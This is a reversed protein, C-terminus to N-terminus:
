PEDDAPAVHFDAVAGCLFEQLGTEPDVSHYQRHRDENIVLVNTLNNDPVWHRFERGECTYGGDGHRDAGGKPL